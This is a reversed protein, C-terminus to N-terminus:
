PLHACCCRKRRGLPKLEHRRRGALMGALRAELRRLAHLAKCGAWESWLRHWGFFVIIIEAVACKTTMGFKEVVTCELLTPQLNSIGRPARALLFPLPLRTESSRRRGSGGGGRCPCRCARRHPTAACLAARAAHASAARATRLMAAALPGRGRGWRGLPEDALLGLRARAAVLGDLEAVSLSFRLAELLRHSNVNM